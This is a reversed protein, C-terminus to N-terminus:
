AFNDLSRQSRIWHTLTRIARYRARRNMCRNLMEYGGAVEHCTDWEEYLDHICRLSCQTAFLM